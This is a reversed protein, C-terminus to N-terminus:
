TGPERRYGFVEDAAYLLMMQRFDYGADAFGQFLHDIAPGEGAGLARGSAYSLYQEAVCRELQGSEM